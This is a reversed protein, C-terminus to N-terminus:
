CILETDACKRDKRTPPPCLSCVGRPYGRRRNNGARKSCLLVSIPQVAAVHGGRRHSSRFSHPADPLWPRDGRLSKLRRLTSGSGLARRRAWVGRRWAGHARQEAAQTARCSRLRLSGRSSSTAGAPPSQRAAARPRTRARRTRRASAPLASRRRPASAGARRSSFSAPASTAQSSFCMTGTSSATWCSFSFCNRSALASSSRLILEVCLRRGYRPVARGHRLDHPHKRWGQGQQARLGVGPQDLERAGGDARLLPSWRDEVLFLLLGFPVAVLVIAVGAFVARAGFRADSDSEVSRAM